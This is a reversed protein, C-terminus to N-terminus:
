YLIFLTQDNSCRSLMVSDRRGEFRGDVSRALVEDDLLHQKTTQLPVGGKVQPEGNPVSVFYAQVVGRM